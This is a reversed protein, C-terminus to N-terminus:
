TEWWSQWFFDDPVHLNQGYGSIMMAYAKNRDPMPSGPAADSAPLPDLVGAEDGQNMLLNDLANGGPPEVLTGDAPHGNENTMGPGGVPDLDVLTGASVDRPPTPLTVTVPPPSVASPGPPGGPAESAVSPPAFSPPGPRVPSLADNALDEVTMEEVVMSPFVGKRGGIEGAWWGDDVGHPERNTVKIVQGEQFSLEEEMNADYDYLAKAYTSEEFSQPGMTNQIEYDTSSYSSTAEAQMVSHPPSNPVQEASDSFGSQQSSYSTQRDISGSNGWTAPATGSAQPTSSVLQTAAGYASYDPNPSFSTQDDLYNIYNEPIFGEQGNGNRGKVWGEGDGIGVVSIEENQAMTLEDGSTAAFDYLAMAQCPFRRAGTLVQGSTASKEFTDDTMDYEADNYCPGNHYSNTDESHGGSSSTRMSFQDSTSTRSVEDDVDVPSLTDMNAKNLWEETDIGAEKLLDLRAEAKMKATESKRINERCEEIRVEPDVPKEKADKEGDPSSSDSASKKDGDTLLVKLTKGYERIAKTEKAVKTAWKKAEQELSNDGKTDFALKRVADNECPEFHYQMLETFAPYQTLFCQLNYDRSILCSDCLAKSFCEQTIGCCELETKSLETLSQQLREFMEGDLAQMLEPMDTQYFRVLHANCAALSLLYENRSISSKGECTDKRTNLKASKQQLSALSSFLGTSRRKVKEDADDAKKRADHALKEEDNYIKQLKTMERVSQDIEKQITAFQELIKKSNQQKQTKLVKIPESVQQMYTEAAQLRTQAIRETVDLVTRWVSTATKFKPDQGESTKCHMDHNDQSVSFSRCAVENKEINRDPNEKVRLCKNNEDDADDFEDDFDDDVDDTDVDVDDDIVGDTSACDSSPGRSLSFSHSAAMYAEMNHEKGDDTPVDPLMYFDKKSLYSNALKLLAQAYDKEIQSRQKSFNRVDELLDADHHHKQQLKTLQEHHVNKVNITSKGKKPPPQM